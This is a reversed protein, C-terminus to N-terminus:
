CEQDIIAPHQGPYTEEKHRIEGRYIPNQLLHYLAGRAVPGGGTVRGQRSTCRKGVIGNTALEDRLAHVSGLAAYREFIHRVTEAERINVVLTKDETDYGLPPVGGMGM